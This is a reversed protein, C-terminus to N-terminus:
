SENIIEYYFKGNFPQVKIIEFDIAVKNIYIKMIREHLTKIYFRFTEPQLARKYHNCNRCSPMKNEIDETEIGKIRGIAPASIPYYHDIQMQKLTIKKGCYACHGDYKNHILERQTM